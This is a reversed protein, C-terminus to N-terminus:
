LSHYCSQRCEFKSALTVSQLEDIVVANKKLSLKALKLELGDVFLAVATTKNGRLSAM